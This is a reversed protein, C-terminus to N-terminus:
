SLRHRPPLNIPDRKNNKLLLLLSLLPFPKIVSIRKLLHLQFGLLHLEPHFLVLILILTLAIIWPVFSLHTIFVSLHIPIKFTISLNKISMIFFKMTLVQLNSSDLEIGGTSM